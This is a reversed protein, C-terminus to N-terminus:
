RKYDLCGCHEAVPGHCYQCISLKKIEEELEKIKNEAEAQKRSSLAAKQWAITREKAHEIMEAKYRNVTALGPQSALQNSLSENQCSLRYIEASQKKAIDQLYEIEKNLENIQSTYGDETQSKSESLSRFNDYSTQLQKRLAKLDHCNQCPKPM